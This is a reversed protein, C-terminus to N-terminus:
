ESLLYGATLSNGPRWGQHFRGKNELIGRASFFFREGCVSNKQFSEHGRSRDSPIM